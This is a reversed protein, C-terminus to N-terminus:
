RATAIARALARGMERNFAKAAARGAVGFWDLQQRAPHADEFKVLLVLHGRTNLNKRTRRVKGNRGVVPVAAGEEVSRQWVGNVPGRKTQVVGIFIDQRGRLSRLFNRPLNGFQDLDRVADVPKLLAKSNLVNRGGFQYPELYHATIDGMFVKAELSTKTARSIRIAGTTFPKPRDLVNRENDQEAEVVRKAVANLAQATAFPLQRHAMASIKRQFDDINSKFNITFTM